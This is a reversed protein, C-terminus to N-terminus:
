PYEVSARTPGFRINDAFWAFARTSKRRYVGVRVDFTSDVFPDATRPTYGWGANWVTDPPEWPAKNLYIEILGNTDGSPRLGLVLHHWVGKQIETSWALMEDGRGAHDDDRVEFDLILHGSDPYTGSANERVHISFPPSLSECAQWAQCILMWNRPTPTMPDVYFDFAVYRITGLTLAYPDNNQAICLEHRDAVNEADPAAVAHFGISCESGNVNVVTSSSVFPRVHWYGHEYVRCVTEDETYIGPWYSPPNEKPAFVGDEADLAVFPEAGRISFFMARAGSFMMLSLLAITGFRFVSRMTKM